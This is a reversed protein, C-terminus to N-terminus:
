QSKLKHGGTCKRLIYNLPMMAIVFLLSLSLEDEQFIGGQIEVETLTKEGATSEKRWNKMTKEIFKLGKSSIM